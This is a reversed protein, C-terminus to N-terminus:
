YLSFIHLLCDRIVLPHPFLYGTALLYKMYYEHAIHCPTKIALESFLAELNPCFYEHEFSYDEPIGARLIEVLKM